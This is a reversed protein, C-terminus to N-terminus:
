RFYPLAPTSRDLVTSPFLPALFGSQSVKTDTYYEPQLKGRVYAFKEDANILPNRMDSIVGASSTHVFAKCGVRKAEEMLLRTGEVNVKRMIEEARKALAKNGGVDFTPSVTHIIVSPRISELAPRLSSVDTIDATHYTASPLTTQGVRVDLVHVRTSPSPYRELLLSVIHSGLFGCGGTVLISGLPASPAQTTTM